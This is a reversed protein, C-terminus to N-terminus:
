LNNSCVKDPHAQISLAQGVSLVKFLFPLQQGFRRVTAEGLTAPNKKIYEELTVDTDDWLVSPGSKHTGM